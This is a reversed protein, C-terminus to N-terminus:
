GVWAASTKACNSKSLTDLTSTTRQTKWTKEKACFYATAPVDKGDMEDMQMASIM